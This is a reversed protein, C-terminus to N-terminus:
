TTVGNALEANYARIATIDNSISKGIGFSFGNAMSISFPTFLSKVNQASLALAAASIMTPIVGLKDIIATLVSLIAAGGDVAGKILNSSILTNAFNEYIAKFQALKGSISELRIENAELAAGAANASAELAAEAEHFNGLISAVVNANRKGALAELVASQDVNRDALDDWVLSIEKLIQYLSKFNHEDLMIDVGTLAMLEKRLKPTSRALDDVEEGMAELDATAGRVRLATTKLANGVKSPDQTVLNGATILAIASDINEGAVVLSAASNQLAVGIGAADIAFTNGVKTFKDAIEMATEATYGFAKLSSVMSTTADDINLGAVSSFIATIGALDLSESLTYGLRAWTTSSNLLASVSTGADRAATVAERSFKVYAAATENTIIKLDTMATDLAIVTSITNKILRIGAVFSRTVISWGGFKAYASKIVEFATKGELGLRTAESRVEAFKGRLRGLESVTVSTNRGLTLMIGNLAEGFRAAARPNAQIYGSLQRELNAVASASAMKEQAAAQAAAAEKRKAAQLQQIGAIQDRIALGEATLARIAESSAATKSAKLAEIKQQWETYRQMIQSLQANEEIRNGGGIAGKYMNTVSQSLASLHKMQAAFASTAEQGRKVAAAARDAAAAVKSFSGEAGAAGMFDKLGTISLGSLMYELQKRLGKIAASADITKVQLAHVVPANAGRLQNAMTQIQKQFGPLAAATDIRIHSIRPANRTGVSNALNQIDSIFRQRSAASADM